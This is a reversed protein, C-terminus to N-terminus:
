FILVTKMLVVSVPFTPLFIFICSLVIVPISAPTWPSLRSSRKLQSNTFALATHLPSLFPCQSLVWLAAWSQLLHLGGAVKKNKRKGMEKEEGDM